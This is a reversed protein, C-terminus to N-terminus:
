VLRLIQWTSPVESLASCGLLIVLIHPKSEREEESIFDVRLECGSSSGTAWWAGQAVTPEKGSAGGPFGVRPECPQAFAPASPDPGHHALGSGRWGSQNGGVM